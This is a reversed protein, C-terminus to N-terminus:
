TQPTEDDMKGITKRMSAGELELRYPQEIARDNIAHKRTLGANRPLCVQEACYCAGSRGKQYARMNM